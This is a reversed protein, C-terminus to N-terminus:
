FFIVACLFRLQKHGIYRVNCVLSALFISEELSTGKEPKAICQNDEAVTFAANKGAKSSKYLRFNRNKTYVGTHQFLFFVTRSSITYICIKVCLFLVYNKFIQNGKGLDVFLSDRGDKNKVQLFSLDRVEEKRRKMEPSVAQTRSLAFLHLIKVKFVSCM